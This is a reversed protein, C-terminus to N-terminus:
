HPRDRRSGGRGAAPVFLGRKPHLFIAPSGGDEGDATLVYAFVKQPRNDSGILARQLYGQNAATIEKPIEDVGTIIHAGAGNEDRLIIGLNGKSLLSISEKAATQFQIQISPQGM